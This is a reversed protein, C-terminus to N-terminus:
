RRIQPIWIVTAALLVLGVSSVVTLAMPAGVWDALLGLNLLGIPACGICVSLLSMLRSRAEPPALSLVLTTQMAGFGAM